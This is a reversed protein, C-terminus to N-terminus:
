AELFMPLYGPNQGYVSFSEKLGEHQDDGFYTLTLPLWGTWNIPFRAEFYGNQDTTAVLTRYANDYYTMYVSAGAVPTGSSTRLYGKVGVAMGEDFVATVNAFTTSVGKASLATTPLPVFASPAVQGATAISAIAWGALAMATVFALVLMITQVPPKRKREAEKSRLQM